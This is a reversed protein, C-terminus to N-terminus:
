RAMWLHQGVFEYSSSCLRDLRVQTVNGSNWQVSAHDGQIRTVVGRRWQRRHDIYLEGTRVGDNPLDTWNVDGRAQRCACIETDFEDLDPDCGACYVWPTGDNSEDVQSPCHQGCCRCPLRPIEECQVATSM